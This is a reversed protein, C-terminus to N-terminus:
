RQNQQVFPFACKMRHIFSRSIIRRLGQWASSLFHVTSLVALQSPLPNRPRTRLLSGRMRPLGRARCFLLICMSHSVICNRHSNSAECYFRIRRIRFSGLVEIDSTAQQPPIGCTYLIKSVSLDALATKSGSLSTKFVLPLFSPPKRPKRRPPATKV